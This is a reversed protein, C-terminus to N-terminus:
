LNQMSKVQSCLPLTIFYRHPTLRKVRAPAQCAQPWPHSPPQRRHAPPRAMCQRLRATHVAQPRAQMLLTASINRRTPSGEVQMATIVEIVESYHVLVTYFEPLTCAQAAM